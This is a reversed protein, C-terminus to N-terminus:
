HHHSLAFTLIILTQVMRDLMVGVLYDFLYVNHSFITFFSLFLLSALFTYSTELETSYKSTLIRTVIFYAGGEFICGM